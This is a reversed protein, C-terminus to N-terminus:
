NLDSLIGLFMGQRDKWLAKAFIGVLSATTKGKLHSIKRAMAEVIELLNEAESSGPAVELLQQQLKEQEASIDENELDTVSTTPFTVNSQSTGPRTVLASFSGETNPIGRAAYRPFTVAPFIPPPPPLDGAVVNGLYVQSHTILILLM